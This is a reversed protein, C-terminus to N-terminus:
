GVHLANEYQSANVLSEKTGDHDFPEQLPWNMRWWALASPWRRNDEIPDQENTRYRLSSLFRRGKGGTKEFRAQKAQIQHGTSAAM